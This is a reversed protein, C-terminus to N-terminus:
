ELKPGGEDRSLNSPALPGSKLYYWMVGALRMINFVTFAVWVGNLGMMEPRGLVQLTAILGASALINSLALAFFSGTGQMIGEGIFVLGNISQLMAAIISPVRAAKQVDELPSFVSLLPLAAIQVGGMLIGLVLGWM